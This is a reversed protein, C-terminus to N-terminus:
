AEDSGQLVLHNMEIVSAILIMKTTWKMEVLLLSYEKHLFLNVSAM